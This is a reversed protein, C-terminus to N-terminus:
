KNPSADPSETIAPEGTRYIHVRWQGKADDNGFTIYWNGVDPDYTLDLLEDNPKLEQEIEKAKALIGLLDERSLELEQQFWAVDEDDIPETICADWEHTILGVKFDEKRETKLM